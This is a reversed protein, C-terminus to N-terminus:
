RREDADIQESIARAAEPALTGDLLNVTIITRPGTSVVPAGGPATPGAGPFPTLDPGGTDPPAAPTDPAGGGGGGISRSAAGGLAAVAAALAAGTALLGAAVPLGALGKTAVEKAAGTSYHALIQNSASQAVTKVLDKAVERANIKGKEGAEFALAVVRSALAQEVALVAKAKNVGADFVEKAEERVIATRMKRTSAAIDNKAKEAQAAKLIGQAQAEDILALEQLEAEGIAALREERSLGIAALQNDLGEHLAGLKQELAAKEIEIEADAIEKQAGLRQRNFANQIELEALKRKESDMTQFEASARLAALARTEGDDIIRLKEEASHEEESLRNRTEEIIIKSIDKEVVSTIGQVREAGRLAADILVDASENAAKAVADKAGGLEAFAGKINEKFGSFNLQLLNLLAAGLEAVTGAVGEVIKINAEFVSKMVTGLAPVIVLIGQLGRSVFSIAPEFQRVLTGITQEFTKNLDDIADSAGAASKIASLFFAGISVTKALEGLGGLKAGFGKVQDGAKGAADGAGQLEQRVVKLDGTQADFTMLFKLETQEAM